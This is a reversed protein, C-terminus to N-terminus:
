QAKERPSFSVSRVLAELLARDAQKYLVKSVHMDVWYGQVVFEAFLHQQKVPAGKFEPVFCEVISVDGLESASINEVTGMRAFGAKQVMDRCERSSHCKSAPEVFFSVNLGAAKDSASFSGQKGDPSIKAPQMDFGGKPLVLSWPAGPVLLTLQEQAVSYSSSASALLIVSILGAASLPFRNVRM